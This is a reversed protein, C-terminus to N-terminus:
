AAPALTVGSVEAAAALRAAFARCAAVWAAKEQAERLHPLVAEFPLVRGEARADLRIIHFGYRTEVPAASFAGEEMGALAAEFEPVTDGPAIQGLMGGNARSDCASVERALDAFARPNAQLRALVAGAEDRALDRAPGDAPATILIHAVQWLTPSRFREPHADYIARLAPVAVPAPRIEDELLQRILAEDGTEWKGPALEIPDAELGRAQAEQLMLERLALARAAARWALGPKNKPAPHNQAEDAIREPAITTGNVVVPPLLPKREM